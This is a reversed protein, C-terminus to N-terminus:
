HKGVGPLLELLRQSGIEVKATVLSGAYATAPLATGLGVIVVGSPQTILLGGAGDLRYTKRAADPSIIGPEVKAITTRVHAGMGASGIQVDAPLGVRLQALQDPPLFVVAVLEGPSTLPSPYSPSRPATLQLMDGQALVIGSGDVYTPVQVYWALFGMAVFVALLLWLCVVIPWSILRPVIDREMGRKYATIASQRYINREPM